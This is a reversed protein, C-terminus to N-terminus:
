FGYKSKMAWRQERKRKRWCSRWKTNYNEYLKTYRYLWALDSGDIYKQHFKKSKFKSFKYTYREYGNSDETIVIEPYYIEGTYYEMKNPIYLDQRFKKSFCKTYKEIFYKKKMDTSLTKFAKNSMFDCSFTNINKSNMKNYLIYISFIESKLANNEM